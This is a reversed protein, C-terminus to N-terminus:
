VGLPRPREPHTAHFAAVLELAGSLNEVPEWSVDESIRSLGSSDSPLLLLSALGPM